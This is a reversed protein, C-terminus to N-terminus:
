LNLPAKVLSWILRWYASKAVREVVYVHLRQDHKRHWFLDTIQFDFVCNLDKM